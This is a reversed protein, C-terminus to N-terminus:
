RTHLWTSCTPRLCVFQVSLISDCHSYGFTVHRNRLSVGYPYLEGSWVGRGIYATFIKVVICGATVLFAFGVVSLNRRWEGRRLWYMSTVSGPTRGPESAEREMSTSAVPAPQFSVVKNQKIELHLSRLLQVLLVFSCLTFLQVLNRRSTALASLARISDTIPVPPSNILYRIPTSPLVLPPEIEWGVSLASAPNDSLQTLAAHLMASAILPGLLLAFLAGDDM